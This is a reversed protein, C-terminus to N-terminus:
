EDWYQPIRAEAMELCIACDCSDKEGWPLDDEIDCLDYFSGYYEDMVEDAALQDDDRERFYNEQIEASEQDVRLDERYDFKHKAM